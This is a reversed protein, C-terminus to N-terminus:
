QENILTDWMKLSQHANYKKAAEIAGEQAIFWADSDMRYHYIADALGQADDPSIISGMKYTTIIDAIDNNKPGVFIVPRAVALAAFFKCPLLLGEVDEKMSVLHIDGNEIIPAINHLPQLPVLKLNGLERKSREESLTEHADKQNVFTFEIENNDKLIECADIIPKVVHSRGIHGAYLIRFKASDDRLIPKNKKEAKHTKRKRQHHFETASWNPITRIDSNTVGTKDLHKAMCHSVTVITDCKKMVQRSKVQIKSLIFHPIKVGLPEFLDPYVDHCWHIHRAKNKKAIKDGIMSLMPPDTLSIVIDYHKLGSSKMWLKLWLVFFGYWKRHNKGSKVRHITIHGSKETGAPAGTTLIGVRHGNKSLNRVLDFAMQGTAGFDPPYTRNIILISPKKM